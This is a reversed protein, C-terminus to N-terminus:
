ASKEMEPTEDIIVGMEQQGTIVSWLTRISPKKGYLLLAWRFVKAAAWTVLVTSIALTSLSVVIQWTPIATFPYKLMYTMGATFPIFLMINFIQAEPNLLLLSVFFLPLGLLLSIGGAYIRSEEESGAVAGVGALLSSFLFYTLIFYVLVILVFDIPLVVGSLIDLNGSFNVGILGVGLWVLMQMLGLGGLGILKGGLLEYPTVSTILVEMIHNSKEEIVGSMLFTSSLQLAMMLVVGFIIPTVFLGLLGQLSLERQTNEMYLEFDVPDILREPPADSVVTETINEAIFVEIEDRTDDSVTGYSYLRVEGTSLYLPTIVFFVDVTGNDLAETAAGVTPYATYMDNEISIVESQEVYGISNAVLGDESAQVQVFITIGLITAMLLPVGFMAFLFSRKRINTMFEHQAVLWINSM